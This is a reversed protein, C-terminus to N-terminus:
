AAPRFCDPPQDTEACCATEYAARETHVGTTSNAYGVNVGVYPGENAADYFSAGQGAVCAGVGADALALNTLLMTSLVLLMGGLAVLTTRVM